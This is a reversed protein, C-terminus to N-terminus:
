DKAYFGYGIRHPLDSRYGSNTIEYHGSIKASFRAKGNMCHENDFCYILIAEISNIKDVSFRGQKLSVQGRRVKLQHGPFRTAWESQKRRHDPQSLRKSVSQSYAQGVYIMKESSRKGHATIMYVLDNEHEAGGVFNLDVPRSWKISVQHHDDDFILDM